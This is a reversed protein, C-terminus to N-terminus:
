LVYFSIEIIFFPSTLMKTIVLPLLYSFLSLAPYLLMSELVYRMTNPIVKCYQCQLQEWYIIHIQHISVVSEFFRKNLLRTIDSCCSHPCMYMVVIDNFPSISVIFCTPIDLFVFISSCIMRLLSYKSCM